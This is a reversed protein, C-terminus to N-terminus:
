RNDNMMTVLSVFKQKYNMGYYVSLVGQKQNAEAFPKLLRACFCAHGKAAMESGAGWWGSERICGEEFGSSSLGDFTELAHHGNM